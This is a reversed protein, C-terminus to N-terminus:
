QIAPVTVFNSDACRGAVVLRLGDAAQENRCVCRDGYHGFGVYFHRGDLRGNRCTFIEALAAGNQAMGTKASAIKTAARFGAFPVKNTKISNLNIKPGDGLQVSHKGITGVASRSQETQQTQVQRAGSLGVADTM